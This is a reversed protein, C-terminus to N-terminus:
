DEGMSVRPLAASMHVASELVAALHVAHDPLQSLTTVSRSTSKCSKSSARWSLLREAGRLRLKRTCSRWNALLAWSRTSNRTRSVPRM